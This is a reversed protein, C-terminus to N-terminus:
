LVIEYNSITISTILYEGEGNILKHPFYSPLTEFVAVFLELFTLIFFPAVLAFADVCLLHLYKFSILSDMSKMLDVLELLM